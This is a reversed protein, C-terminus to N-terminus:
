RSCGRCRQQRDRREPTHQIGAFRGHVSVCEQHHTGQDRQLAAGEPKGIQGSDGHRLAKYGKGSVFMKGPPFPVFSAGALIQSKIESSFSGSNRDGSIYLPKLGYRDRALVLKGNDLVAVVFAGDILTFIRTGLRRYLRLLLQADSVPGVTAPLFEEALAARNFIYSDSGVVIGDEEALAPIKTDARGSPMCAGLTFGDDSHTDVVDPGRHKLRKLMRHVLLKDSTGYTGAVGEM